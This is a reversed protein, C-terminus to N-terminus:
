TFSGFDMVLTPGTGTFSGFDLELSGTYGGTITSYVETFNSNIKQYALRLPDGTGDNPLSGVNILQQAM